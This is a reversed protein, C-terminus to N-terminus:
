GSQDPLASEKIDLVDANDPPDIESLIHVVPVDTDVAVVTVVPELIVAIVRVVVVAGMCEFM